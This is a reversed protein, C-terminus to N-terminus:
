ERKKLGIALCSFFFLPIAGLLVPPLGISEIFGVSPLVGSQQPISGNASIDSKLTPAIAVEVPELDAVTLMPKGVEGRLEKVEAATVASAKNGFSNRIYTLVGAIQEDSQHALPMMALSYETGKVKIPGQLGRLQIRILNKVSGTVWESGALPPAVGAVGGGDAGHCAMCLAYQTKGIALLEATTPMPTEASATKAPDSSPASTPNEKEKAAKEDKEEKSILKVPIVKKGSPALKQGTTLTALWAVLDRAEQPKLLGAMPPMGSVPDTMKDIDVRSVRSITQGADIDVYEDTSKLLVGGVFNGDKLTVSVMGYGDAVKAGPVFLSELLYTRDGRKAVGGLNPGAEGGAEHGTGARHCRMCESPHSHYITEGRKPDGGHLAIRWPALMDGTQLSKQWRQYVQQVVEEQRLKASDLLEIAYPVEGKQEILENMSAVFHDVVAEGPVTALLTWAGQQLPMDNKKTAAVLPKAAAEPSSKAMSQLASLAVIADADSAWTALDQTANPPSMSIYLDIAKARAASPLDKNGAIAKFDEASLKEFGLKYQEILSLAQAMVCAGSRIITPLKETLVAKIEQPDRKPLPSYFGVSQDVPFPASWESLLRMAEKRVRDELRSDAAADSVLRANEQGGSRFASHLIRRWMMETRSVDRKALLAAVAPRSKELMQDHIGRIAEDSVKPSPDDLFQQLLDSKMRRLAVVIALRVSSNEQTLLSSFQEETLTSALAHAGIVRLYADQDKNNALMELLNPVLYALKLSAMANAAFFRVRASDDKLAGALPIQLKKAEPCDALMKLAQARFEAQPDKVVKVLLNLAEKKFAENPIAVFGDGSPHPLIGRRAIIGLGWLSHRKELDNESELLKKFVAFGDNRRSLEIQARLRIRMDPHRLMSALVDTKQIRFGEAMWAAAQKVENALYTNEGADLSYVSGDNHSEWGNKFDTVFVKGDYSYEVDTAGVGWNFERADLMKMSAGHPTLGFSYIGSRSGSGRYDTILFRGRESELFGAGPHYTLGSPGSTLNAVAPLIYAPMNEDELKWMGEAMWRNIPAEKLGVAGAFTHLTQNEMQWGTEGGPVLYVIRAKDGQDANNDVSIANGWEDFAIEKPNRLGTHLIEFRTGDPEFRFYTGENPYHYKKGEKTTFSLGRDGVTGHIMGDPGLAFGNLDHGSLSIRVGFGDQIVSKKDSIFDGDEDRLAWIKPISAFYVTGDMAFVGAGTGDLLDNFGDAFVQSKEFRGDGNTDSLVRVIESKKTLDKISKKHNWKEHLKRRDDTTQAALDDLYWFLNNRDDEVGYRFRHTESVYLNGKEDFCLATPSTVKEKRYDAVVTAKVGEPITLGPIVPSSVLSQAGKALVPAPFVPKASDSLVFHDAAIFGWEGKADDVIRIAAKTGMFKQLDWVVAAFHLTKDGVAEKAVKGDVLLQVCTKQALTGGAIKFGLYREGITFEESTLTGVANGGGKASCAMSAQCFGQMAMGSDPMVGPMPGKGFGDGTETWVGFGDGEFNQLVVTDAMLVGVSTFAAASFLCTRIM